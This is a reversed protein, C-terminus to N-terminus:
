VITPKSDAALRASSVTSAALTTGYAINRATVIDTPTPNMKRTASVMAMGSMLLMEPLAAGTEAIM